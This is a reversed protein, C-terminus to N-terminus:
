SMGRSAVFFNVTGILFALTILISSYMYVWSPVPLESIGLINTITNTAFTLYQGSLIGKGVIYVSKLVYGVGSSSEIDGGSITDQSTTISEYLTSSNDMTRYDTYNGVSYHVAGSYYFGGIGLISATIFLLGFLLGEISVSGM